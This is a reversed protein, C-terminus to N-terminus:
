RRQSIRLRERDEQEKATLYKYRGYFGMVSGVVLMVIGIYLLTTNYIPVGLPDYKRFVWPLPVSFVIGLVAVTVGIAALRRYISKM